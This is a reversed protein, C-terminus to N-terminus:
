RCRGWFHGPTLFICGQQDAAVDAPAGAIGGQTQPAFQLPHKNLTSSAPNTSVSRGLVSRSEPTVCIAGTRDIARGTLEGNTVRSPGRGQNPKLRREAGVLRLFLFPIPLGSTHYIPWGEPTHAFRNGVHNRNRFSSFVFCTSSKRCVELCVIETVRYNLPGKFM